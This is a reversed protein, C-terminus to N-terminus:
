GDISKGNLARHPRDMSLILSQRPRGPERTFISEIGILGVCQRPYSKGLIDFIKDSSVFAPSQQRLMFGVFVNKCNPIPLYFVNLFSM